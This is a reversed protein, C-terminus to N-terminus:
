PHDETLAEGIRRDFVAAQEPTLLARMEFLHLVTEKQLGGMATHFHDIARQVEPGYRGARMAQALETNADRLDRELSARRPVFRAEVAALRREQEPSLDLEDHLVAHMSPPASTDRAFFRAGGWVGLAGALLALAAFVALHGLAVRAVFSRSAATM